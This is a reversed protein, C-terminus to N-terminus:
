EGGREFPICVTVRGGGNPGSELALQHEKGYRQELRERTNRLGVGNRQSSSRVFGPGNDSVELVLDSGRLDVQVVVRGGVTQNQMSFRIANEVIPQLILHPVLACRAEDPVNVDVALQGEFRTLEIAVYSDLVALEVALTVSDSVGTNLTARLLASLDAVMQEARPADEHILEAVANLTNFLFHPHLQMRLLDLRARTLQTELRLMKLKRERSRRAHDIAHGTVVLAGYVLFNLQLELLTLQQVLSRDVWNLTTAYIGFNALSFFVGAAFHVASHPLRKGSVWPFRRTLWLVAPTSLAWPYAHAAGRMLAGPWDTPQGGYSNGLSIRFASFVAVLTWVGAVAATQVMLRRM